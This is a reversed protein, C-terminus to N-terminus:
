LEGWPGLWSSTAFTLATLPTIDVSSKRRSWAWGDLLPRTGAGDLAITLEKEGRHKVKKENVLRLWFACATPIDATGLERVKFNTIRELEPLLHACAKGDVVVAPNGHEGVIRELAAPLWDVGPGNELVTARLEEGVEGVAVISASKSSPAVDVGLVVWEPRPADPEALANWTDLDVVSDALASVWWNLYARAFENRPMSRQATRVADASVTRHLAPMCGAWTEEAAADEDDLAAWEFFALSHNLGSEVAQRGALVREHLYPSGDASGATSCVIFQPSRRTMMGPRLAQEIRADQYSFAEDVIGLDCVQGHGAKVTSAVLQVMSGNAFKLSERGPALYATVQSGIPSSEIL